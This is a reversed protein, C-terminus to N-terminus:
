ENLLFDGAPPPAIPASLENQRVACTAGSPVKQVEGVYPTNYQQMNGHGVGEGPAPPPIAPSCDRTNTCNLVEVVSLNKKKRSQTTLSPLCHLSISNKVVM